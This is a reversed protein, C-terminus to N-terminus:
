QTHQKFIAGPGYLIMKPSEQRFGHPSDHCGLERCLDTMIDTVEDSWIANQFEFQNSNLETTNTVSADVTTRSGQGSLAAEVRKIRGADQTKLPLSIPGIAKEHLGPHVANHCVRSTACSGVYQVASLRARLLDRISTQQGDEGLPDGSSKSMVQSDSHAKSPPPLNGSQPDIGTNTMMVDQGSTRTDDDLLRQVLDVRDGHKPLNRASLEEAIEDLSSNDYKSM